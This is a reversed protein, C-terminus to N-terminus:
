FCVSSCISVYFLFLAGQHDHVSGGEVARRELGALHVGGMGAFM